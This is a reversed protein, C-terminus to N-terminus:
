KKWKMDGDNVFHHCLGQKVPIRAYRGLLGSPQLNAAQTMVAAVRALSDHHSSQHVDAIGHFVERRLAATEEPNTNDRYFRNFAAADFFRERQMCLHPWHEQHQKM